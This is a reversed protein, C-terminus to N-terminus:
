WMSQFQNPDLSPDLMPDSFRAQRLESLAHQFQQGDTSRAFVLWEQNPTADKGAQKAKVSELWEEGLVVKTQESKM